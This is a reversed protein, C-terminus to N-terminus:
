SENEKYKWTYKNNKFSYSIIEGDKVADEFFAQLRKKDKPKQKKSIQRKTWEEWTAFKRPERGKRTEIKDCSIRNKDQDKAKEIQGNYDFVYELLTEELMQVCSALNYLFRSYWGTPDRRLANKSFHRLEKGKTEIASYILNGENDKVEDDIGGFFASHITFTIKQGGVIRKEPEGKENTARETTPLSFGCRDSIYLLQLSVVQLVEKKTRTDRRKRKFRRPYTWFDLGMSFRALDEYSPTSDEGKAIKYLQYISAEFTKAGREDEQIPKLETQGDCIFCLCNWAEHVGADTIPFVGPYNKNIQNIAVQYPAFSDGSEEKITSVQNATRQSLVLDYAISVRETKQKPKVEEEKPEEKDDGFIGLTEIWKSAEEFTKKVDVNPVDMELLCKREDWFLEIVFCAFNLFEKEISDKKRDEHDERFWKYFHIVPNFISEELNPDDFEDYKHLDEAKPKQAFVYAYLISYASYSMPSNFVNIISRQKRWPQGGKIDSYFVSIYRLENRIDALFPYLAAYDEFAKMLKENWVIREIIELDTVNGRKKFSFYSKVYRKILSAEENSLSSDVCIKDIDPLVFASLYKDLREKLPSPITVSRM